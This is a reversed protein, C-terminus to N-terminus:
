GGKMELRLKLYWDESETLISRVTDQYIEREREMENQKEDFSFDKTPMWRSTPRLTGHDRYGKHRILRRAKRRSEYQFRIKCIVSNIREDNLVTSYLRRLNRCKSYNLVIYLFILKSKTNFALASLEPFLLNKGLYELIEYILYSGFEEFYNPQYTILILLCLIDYYKKGFLCGRYDKTTDLLVASYGPGSSRRDLSQKIYSEIDKMESSLFSFSSNSSLREM